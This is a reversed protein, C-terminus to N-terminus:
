RKDLPHGDLLQVHGFARYLHLVNAAHVELGGCRGSPPSRAAAPRARPPAHPPPRRECPQPRQPGRHLPAAASCRPTSNHSM